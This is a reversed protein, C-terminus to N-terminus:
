KAVLYSAVERWEIATPARGRCRCVAEIVEQPSCECDACIKYAIQREIPWVRKDPLSYQNCAWCAAAWTCRELVALPRVGVGSAIEHV